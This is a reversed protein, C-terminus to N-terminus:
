NVTASGLDEEGKESPTKRAQLVTDFSFSDGGFRSDRIEEPELVGMDFHQRDIEAQTKKNALQQQATDEALPPFTIQWNPLEKGKFAGRKQLMLLKVLREIQSLASEEREAIVFDYYDRTDSDGNNSLGAGTIPTGFLKRIPYSTEASVSMMLVEMLKDLGGVASTIRTADEGDADLLYSGMVHRTLNNTQARAVLENEKGEALKQSLGKIKTILLNFEGIIHEVNSYAEGLGRLRQYIRQYITDGWWNNGMRIEPAVDLGDFVICRSEHVQFSQSGFPNTPNVLFLETEGYKLDTPDTYYSIRNVRWRHFVEIKEIDQINNENLPDVLLGGDNAHVVMLAGGYCRAYRWARRIRLKVNLRKCENEILNDTDGDVTFWKRLADYVVLDVIRGGLGSYTYLDRCQSETLRWDAAFTTAEKRDSGLTGMGTIFNAWGDARQAADNKIAKAKAM